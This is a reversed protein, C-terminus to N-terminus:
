QPYGREAHRKQDNATLARNYIRPEDLYGPMDYATPAWAGAGLILNHACPDIDFTVASSAIEEGDMYLKRHTASQTAALRVWKDQITNDVKLIQQHAGASYVRFAIQFDYYILGYGQKLTHDYKSIICFDDTIDTIKVRAMLTLDHTFNLSAHDPITVYDDNSDLLLGYDIMGPVHSAGVITGHNANKSFDTAVAGSREDLHMGLAIDPLTALKTKMWYAFGTMHYPRANTEWLTKTAATQDHWWAIYDQYLWRHYIQALTKPDFPEPKKRVFDTGGRKQFTVADGITGSAGLSLLSAKLKAM